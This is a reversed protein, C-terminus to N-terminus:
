WILCPAFTMLTQAVAPVAAVVCWGAMLAALAVGRGMM